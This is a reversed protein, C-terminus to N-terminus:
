QITWSAPKVQKGIKTYLIDDTSRKRMAVRTKNSIEPNAKLHNPKSVTSAMRPTLCLTPSRASCYRCLMCPPSSTIHHSASCTHMHRCVMCPISLRVAHPCIFLIINYPYQSIRPSSSSDFDVILGHDQKARHM